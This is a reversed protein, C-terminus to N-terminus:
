PADSINEPNVNLNLPEGVTELQLKMKELGKQFDNGLMNEMDMFVLFLNMPYNLRGRFGWKVRTKGDLADETILYAKDDSQFPEKFRLALDIREGELIRTIEQEGKGVNKNKSDWTAIFGITGDTGTYTRKSLPDMENWVSYQEQNKLLKVYNFVEARPRNIIIEKEVGYEKRVLAATILASILIFGTGILLYKLIKM